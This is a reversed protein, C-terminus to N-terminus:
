GCLVSIIFLTCHCLDWNVGSHLTNGRSCQVQVVQVGLPATVTCRWLFHTEPAIEQNQIRWCIYVNNILPSKLISRDVTDAECVRNVEIRSDFPKLLKISHRVNSRKMVFLSLSCPYEPTISLSTLSGKVMKKKM